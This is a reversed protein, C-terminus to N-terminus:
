RIANLHQDLLPLLEEPSLQQEIEHRQELKNFKPAKFIDGLAIGGVPRKSPIQPYFVFDVRKIGHRRRFKPDLMAKLFSNYAPRPHYRAPDNSLAFNIINPTVGLFDLGLPATVVGKLSNDLQSYKGKIGVQKLAKVTETTCNFQPTLAVNSARFTIHSPELADRFAKLKSPSVGYAILTYTPRYNNQGQVLHFYYNTLSTNGSLIDKENTVYANSVEARLSLDEQVEAMGAAFHGNVAGFSDGQRGSLTIIMASEGPAVEAGRDEVVTLRYPEQGQSFENRAIESLLFRGPGLESVRQEVERPAPDASGAAFIGVPTLANIVLTGQQIYGEAFVEKGVYSARSLEDFEYGNLVKTHGFRVSRGAISYRGSVANFELLGTLTSEGAVKTPVQALEFVEGRRLGKVEFAYKRGSSQTVFGPAELSPLASLVPASGALKLRGQPSALYFEAGRRELTGRLFEAGSATAASLLFALSLPATISRARM